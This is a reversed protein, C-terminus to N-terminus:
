HFLYSVRGLLYSRAFVTHLLLPHLVPVEKYNRFLSKEGLLSNIKWLCFGLYIYHYLNKFLINGIIPSLSFM